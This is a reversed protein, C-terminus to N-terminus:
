NSQMLIAQEVSRASAQFRPHNTTDFFAYVSGLVRVYWALVMLVAVRCLRGVVCAVAQAM